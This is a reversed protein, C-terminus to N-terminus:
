DIIINDLKKILEKPTEVYIDDEDSSDDFNYKSINKKIL